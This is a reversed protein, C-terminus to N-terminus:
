AIVVDTLKWTKDSDTFTMKWTQTKTPIKALYEKDLLEFMQDAMGELMANQMAENGESAYIKQLEALHNQAYEKALTTVKTRLASSATSIASQDLIKVEASLSKKDNDYDDKITYSQVYAKKVKKVFEDLGKKFKEGGRNSYSGLAATISSDVNNLQLKSSVSSDALKSAQDFEGNKCATLFENAAKSVAEKDSGKCGAISFLMAFALLISFLRKM